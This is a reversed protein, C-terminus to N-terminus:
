WGGHLQSGIAAMGDDDFGGGDDDIELRGDDSSTFGDSSLADGVATDVFDSLITESARKRREHGAGGGEGGGGVGACARAAAWCAGGCAACGAGCEGLEEEVEACTCGCTAPTRPTAMLVFAAVVLLAGAAEGAGFSAEDPRLWLDAAASAPVGLAMGVSVPLPHTLALGANVALNFLLAAAAHAALPWWPFRAVGADGADGAPTTGTDEGWALPRELGAASLAGVVAGGAVLDVLGVLSLYAAVLQLQAGARRRAAAAREAATPPADDRGFGFGGYSSGDPTVPDHAGADGNGAHQAGDGDDDPGGGDLGGGGPGMGMGAGTSVPAFAYPKSAM